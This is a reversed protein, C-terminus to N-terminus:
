LGQQAFGTTLFDYTKLVPSCGLRKLGHGSQNLTSVRSNNGTSTIPKPSLGFGSDTVCNDNISM